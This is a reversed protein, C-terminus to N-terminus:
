IPGAGLAKVAFSGAKLMEELARHMEELSIQSEGRLIAFHAMRRALERM